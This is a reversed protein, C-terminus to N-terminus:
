NGDWIESRGTVEIFEFLLQGQPLEVSDDENAYCFVASQPAVIIGITGLMRLLFINAYRKIQTGERHFCPNSRYNFM